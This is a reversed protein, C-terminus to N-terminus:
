IGKINCKFEPFKNIPEPLEYWMERFESIEDYLKKVLEFGNVALEYFESEYNKYRDIKVLDHVLINRKDCWVLIDNFTEINLNEFGNYKNEILHM